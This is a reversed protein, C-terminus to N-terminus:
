LEADLILKTAVSSARLMFYPQNTTLGSAVTVSFMVSTRTVVPGDLVIATAAYTGGLLDAIMANGVNTATLTPIKRLLVPLSIEIGATTTSKGHGQGYSGLTADEDALPVYCYRQCRALQDAENVYEFDTAAAAIELQLNSIDFTGSQQGLSNTRADANSGADMWFLLGQSDDGNTGLTKGTISPIAVSITQLAWSTTLAITSVGIGNVASSPSGGSGFNQTLEVAINKAADAKAWFSITVTKGSTKHVGEILHSKIVFNAANAVSTVVTRSYYKPNNPVDTQGLTFTQQTHVKTSGSNINFGRDDSGYGSSTQSIGRQWVSFDGNIILNRAKQNETHIAALRNIENVMTALHANLDDANFVEGNSYTKVSITM